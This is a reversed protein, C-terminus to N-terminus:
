DGHKYLGLDFPCADSFSFVNHLIEDNNPWDVTTGVIVPLVHPVFTAGKQTIRETRVQAPHEPPTVNGVPGEIYVLFDRLEAYNIREIFKFQRSDYKGCLADADAGQKGEARVTGVITAAGVRTLLALAFFTVIFSTKM